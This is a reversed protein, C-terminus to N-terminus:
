LSLMVDCHSPLMQMTVEDKQAYICAFHSLFPCPLCLVLSDFVIYQIAGIRHVFSIKQLNLAKLAWRM